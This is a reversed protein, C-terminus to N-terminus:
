APAFRQDIAAYRFGGFGRVRVNRAPKLWYGVEWDYLDFDLDAEATVADAHNNFSAPNAQTIWLQGGAPEALVRADESEFFTYRFGTDWGSGLLYSLGLRLGSRSELELSEIPGQVNNDTNPDAIAFDLGRRRPKWHLYDISGLWHSRCRCRGRSCSCATRRPSVVDVPDMDVPDMDVPDVEVSPSPVLAASEGAAEAAPDPEPVSPVSAPGQPSSTDVPAESASGVGEVVEAAQRGPFPTSAVQVPVFPMEARTTAIPVAAIVAVLMWKGHVVSEEM